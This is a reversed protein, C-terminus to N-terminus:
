EPVCHGHGFRLLRVALYVSIEVGMKRGAPAVPYALSM